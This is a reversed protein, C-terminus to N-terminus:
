TLSAALLLGTAGAMVLPCLRFWIVPTRAGTVATWVALVALFGACVRYVLRATGTDGAVAVTVTLAAVLWMALAEAVWEQTLVLRSDRSLEGFGAVVQRTPIVHAIGWVFVVGGAAFALADSM